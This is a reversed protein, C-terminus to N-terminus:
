AAQVASDVDKAAAFAVKAQVQGTNPNYVDGQRASAGKVAAGSIFHEIARMPGSGKRTQKPHHEPSGMRGDAGYQYHLKAPHPRLRAPRMCYSQSSRRRKRAAVRAPVSAPAPARNPTSAAVTPRRRARSSVASREVKNTREGEPM